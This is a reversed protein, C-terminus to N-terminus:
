KKLKNIRELGKAAIERVEPDSEELASTLPQIARADAIFALALLASDHVEKESDEPIAILPPVV